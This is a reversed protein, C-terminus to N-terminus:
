TGPGPLLAVGTELRGLERALAARALPHDVLARDMAMVLRHLDPSALLNVSVQPGDPKLEGRMRALLELAGRLERAADLFGRGTATGTVEELRNTLGEVRELTTRENAQRRQVEATVAVMAPSLHAARHRLVADKGVTYQVAVARNSAGSALAHDIADREAHNCISCPMAM